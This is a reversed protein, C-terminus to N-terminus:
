RSNFICINKEKGAIYALNKDGSIVRWNIKNRKKFRELWGNSVKFDAIHFKEAFKIAKAKILSEM